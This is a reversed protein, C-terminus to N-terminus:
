FANLDVARLAGFWKIVKEGDPSKVHILYVGSAIPIGATNKLDWNVYSRTNSRVGSSTNVKDDKNFDIKFQRVLIGGSSYISVTCKPPLNIIKVINDLQNTEYFDFGRYPNPVAAIQDLDSSAKALSATDPASGATSFTYMPWYNNTNHANSLKSSFYRQYPKTVRLRITLDNNLWEGGFRLAMPASCWMANSIQYAKAVKKVYASSRTMTMQKFFSAGGDYAPCNYADAPLGSYNVVYSEKKDTHSMVYIYHRGGFVQDSNRFRVSTPNFLMDRGNDEIDHSDEGFVINLREGTEINIAYGPFWGMGYDSIFSSNKAPDSSIVGTDGDQNVSKGKRIDFQNAGGENLAALKGMEIVACRTWKSKDSTFVVDVSALDSFKNSERSRGPIVSSHGLYLSDQGDYGAFMYPAWTGNNLTEYNSEPDFYLRQAGSTFYDGGAIGSRIWNTGGSGDIDPVFGLYPKTSDAYTASSYLVGNDTLIPEYVLATYPVAPATPVVYQTRTLYPGPFFQQEISISLGLDLFLQQNLVLTTTDSDYSKGSNLDVLQWHNVLINTDFSQATVKRRNFMSDFVVQFNTNKLNLPDIVRINIPGKGREYKLNYAIPYTDSGMQNLSDVMPKSLIEDISEKSLELLNGGNGQGAVRTIEFGDDYQSKLELQGVIDHPIGTYVRINKRGPLYPLKQGDFYDPNNQVYDKYNNYAYSIALYYYQKFNVLVGGGFADRTLVVSHQIGKNAGVVEEVPISGGLNADYYFNVIRSVSNKIDCQFVERAKDPDQIDAVSVTADKLQFIRYGEFKYLSDYHLGSPSQIRPDYETYGERYNSGDDSTKRNTIYLILKNELERITLDPANPGSIVKFCNDFLQQCKDDVVKLLDVSALNGGSTARAWPIGVTIYNVAGPELVFPGASHMFRRDAPQNNAEYETWKKPIPVTGGTGWDCVDTMDPFMFDCEPGYSNADNIHGNGGYWMKTNDKWIGKLYNYYEIALKPDTKAPNPDTNNHYVFRRMGFREDDVVGNGFNVGNIAEAQVHTPRTVTDYGIAPPTKPILVKMNWVTDNYKVIDCENGDYFHFSPGGIGKGKFSPNDYGDPDMYPGQFFDIGVAPPNAGYAWAQGNGDVPNGNYCFGLGREVDCGVYDDDAYGLDTDAWQSFYTETLRYTSRNIIEYSYFTMNNIEDNTSFGFAQARIELGIPQGKSETHPAGKDNFVWWLTGDGKLVQDVLSTKDIWQDSTPNTHLENGEATPIKTGCLENSIDYYPYDGSGKPDYEGDENVDKFPALYHSYPSNGGPGNAPYNMISAPPDYNPYASKDAYWALFEDVEARTISHIKDYEACMVPDIYARGDISLPGNTFDYGEQRYRQAALKLQGNVDLGGIWLAASFLSMKKSNKPIEYQAAEFDWWMDGGSNIRTRVNNIELWKFSFGQKCDAAINKPAPSSKIHQKDAYANIAFGLSLTLILLAFLKKKM